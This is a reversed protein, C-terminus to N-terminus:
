SGRHFFEKGQSIEAILRDIEETTNYFYFSARLAATKGLRKLLPQACMHGARVAIGKSDLYQAMDHPHIGEIEFSVIGTREKARGLITIGEIRELRELAYSALRTEHERIREMGLRSLYDLAAKLGVAGAANPTGAEFKYPPDNWVSFEPEVSLIMEGGGQYPPMAELLRRKAYLVGIGTPGCLKHGSFALFDCDLDAVDVAIHPVSQAADLLVPVGADHAERIIRKVDNVTGLVNSVHTIAVLGTRDSLLRPLADLALVGESSLPIFKLRANRKRALLQWPVLNSHHEMETLLIEDGPGINEEGWASAVLNIAETANRTFVIETASEAGIFRACASRSEKLAETAARSLAHLGRHVNANKEEYFRKVAEIVARPKQTTAANDLWALRRGRIRASLIPFDSRIREIETHDFGNSDSM